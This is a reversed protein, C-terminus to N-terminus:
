SAHMRHHCNSLRALVNTIVVNSHQAIVEPLMKQACAGYAEAHVSCQMLASSLVSLMKDSGPRSIGGGAM